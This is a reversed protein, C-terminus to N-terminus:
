GIPAAASPLRRLLSIFMADTGHVHPWLQVGAPNAGTELQPSVRRLVAATNLRELEPHRALVEDIRATTEDLHPSCTTFCLV